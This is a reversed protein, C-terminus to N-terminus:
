GGAKAHVAFMAGQPDVCQAIMDGGPVEMPGNVVTGGHAEVKEIAKAVDPVHIYFLWASVPIQPPRDFMGGLPHAGRGFMHYAGLEGMDVTDVAKWGFLDSYFAWADKWGDTALEHWSFEGLAAPDDHGPADGMPQYASFIAGQPDRIVAFNGVTPVAIRNMVEAGLKKAKAMTQELDPTSIHVMWNPPAGMAAAEAPLQMLGGIPREGNVWMTYPEAGEAQWPMTTWGAVAGYFGPAAEPDTTLLEYWCFRGLPSASM